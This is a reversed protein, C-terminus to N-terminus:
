AGEEEEEEEEEEAAVTSDVSMVSVAVVEAAPEKRLPVWVGVATVRAVAGAGAAVAM